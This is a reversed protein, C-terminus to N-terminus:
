KWDRGVPRKRWCSGHAIILRGGIFFYLIRKGSYVNVERGKGMMSAEVANMNDEM